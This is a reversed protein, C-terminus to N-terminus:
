EAKVWQIRGTDPTQLPNDRRVADMLADRVSRGTDRNQTDAFVGGGTGGQTLYNNTVVRYTREPDLPEGDVRLRITHGDTWISIGAVQIRSKQARLNDRVLQELQAASLDVVVLTNDFPMVQYVDRVRIDGAYLDARLGYTNQIAIDAETAARM